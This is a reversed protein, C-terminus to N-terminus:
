KQLRHWYKAKMPLFLMFKQYTSVYLAVYKVQGRYDYIRVGSKVEKGDKVDQVAQKVVENEVSKGIKGGDPHYVMTGNEDVVYVYCSEVGKIGVGDLKQSLADAKLVYTADGDAKKVEGDLIGGYAMALDEIYNQSLKTLERKATPAYSLILLIGTALTVIFFSFVLRVKISNQAKVKQDM